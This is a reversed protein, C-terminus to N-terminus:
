GSLEAEKRVEREEQGGHRKRTWPWQGEAERKTVALDELSAPESGTTLVVVLLPSAPLYLKMLKFSVAYRMTEEQDTDEGQREPQKM